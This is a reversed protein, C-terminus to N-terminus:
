SKEAELLEANFAEALEKAKKLVARRQESDVLRQGQERPLSVLCEIRGMGTDHGALEVLYKLSSNRRIIIQGM